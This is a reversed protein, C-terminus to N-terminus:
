SRLTREEMIIKRFVLNGLVLLYKTLINCWNMKVVGEAGVSLGM